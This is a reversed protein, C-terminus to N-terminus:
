HSIIDLLISVQPSYSTMITLSNMSSLTLPISNTTNQNITKGNMHAFDSQFVIHHIFYILRLCLNDKMLSSLCCVWFPIHFNEVNVAIMQDIQDLNIVIIMFEIQRLNLIWYKMNIFSYCSYIQMALNWKFNMLMLDIKFHM